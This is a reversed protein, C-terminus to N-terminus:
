GNQMTEPVLPTDPRARAHRHIQGQWLLEPMSVLAGVDNESNPTEIALNWHSHATRLQGIVDLERARSMFTPDPHGSVAVAAEQSSQDGGDDDGQDESASRGARDGRTSLVM